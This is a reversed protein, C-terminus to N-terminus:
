RNVDTYQPRMTDDNISTESITMELKYCEEECTANLSTMVVTNDRMLWTYEIPSHQINVLECKFALLMLRAKDWVHENDHEMLYSNVYFEKSSSNVNWVMVLQICTSADNSIAEGNPQDINKRQLKYMLVGVSQNGDPHINFGAQMTSGADVCQDPSLYWIAYFSYYIPSALEVGPFQHHIVLTMKPADNMYDTDSQVSYFEENAEILQQIQNIPDDSSDTSTMKFLVVLITLSLLFFLVLQILFLINRSVRKYVISSIV